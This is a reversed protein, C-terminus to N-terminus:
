FSLKETDDANKGIVSELKLQEDRMKILPEVKNYYDLSSTKTAALITWGSNSTAYIDADKSILYEVCRAQGNMAAVHLVTRGHGDRLDVPMGQDEIFFRMNGLIGRGALYHLVSAGGYTRLENFDIGNELMTRIDVVRGCCASFIQEIRQDVENRKDILERGDMELGM